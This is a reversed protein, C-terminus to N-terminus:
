LTNYPPTLYILLLYDQKKEFSVARGSVEVLDSQLRGKLLVCLAESSEWCVTSEMPKLDRPSSKESGKGIKWARKEAKATEKWSMTTTM